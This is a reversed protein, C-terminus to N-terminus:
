LFEVQTIAIHILVVICKNILYAFVNPLIILHCGEVLASVQTVNHHKWTGFM